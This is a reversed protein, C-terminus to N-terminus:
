CPDDHKELGKEADDHTLQKFDFQKSEVLKDILDQSMAFAMGERALPILPVGHENLQQL